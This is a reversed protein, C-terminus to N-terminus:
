FLHLKKGKGKKKQKTESKLEKKNSKKLLLNCIILKLNGTLMRKKFFSIM